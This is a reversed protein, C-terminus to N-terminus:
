KMENGMTMAEVLYINKEYLMDIEFRLMFEVKQLLGCCIEVSKVRVRLTTQPLKRLSLEPQHSNETYGWQTQNSLLRIFQYTRACQSSAFHGLPFDGLQWYSNYLHLNTSRHNTIYGPLLTFFDMWSEYIHSGTPNWVLPSFCVGIWRQNFPSPKM